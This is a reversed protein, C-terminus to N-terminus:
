RHSVVFEQEMVGHGLPQAHRARRGRTSRQDSACPAHSAITLWGM